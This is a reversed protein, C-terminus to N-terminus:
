ELYKQSHQKGETHNPLNGEQTKKLIRLLAGRPSHFCKSLLFM